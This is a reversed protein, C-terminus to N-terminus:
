SPSQTGVYNPNKWKTYVVEDLYLGQPYAIKGVIVKHNDDFLKTFEEISLEGKGMDLLRQVIIRVMSKLFRNAKIMFEAKKMHDDYHFTCDFIKCVTSDHRDPTKCFNHFKTQNKLLECAQNISDLDLHKIDYYSSLDKLFPSREFHLM